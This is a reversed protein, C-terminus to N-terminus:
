FTETIPCGLKYFQNVRSFYKDYNKLQDHVLSIGLPDSSTSWKALFMGKCKHLNLKSGSVESYEHCLNFTSRVSSDDIFFTKVDDAFATYKLESCSGPLSLGHITQDLTLKRLFPEFILVYLLPSLSCSQRVGRSINFPTSICKNVIVSSSTNCYM